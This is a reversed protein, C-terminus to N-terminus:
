HVGLLSPVMNFHKTSTGGIIKIFVEMIHAESWRELKWPLICIDSVTSLVEEHSATRNGLWTGSM